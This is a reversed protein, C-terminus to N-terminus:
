CSRRYNPALSAILGSHSNVSLSSNKFSGENAVEGGLDWDTATGSPLFSPPLPDRIPRIQCSGRNFCNETCFPQASYRPNSLVPSPSPSPCPLLPLVARIDRQYIPRSSPQQRDRDTPPFLIMLDVRARLIVALEAPLPLDLSPPM